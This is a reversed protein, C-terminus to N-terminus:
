HQEETKLYEEDVCHLDNVSPNVEFGYKSHVEGYSVCPIGSEKLNAKTINLGRGFTSIFRLKSIRWGEPIEGLWEVGSDKYAPYAKYRGAM